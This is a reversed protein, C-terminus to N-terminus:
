CFTPPQHPSLPNVERLKDKDIIVHMEKRKQLHTLAKMYGAKEETVNRKVTPKTPKQKPKQFAAGEPQGLTPRDHRGYSATSIRARAMVEALNAKGIKRNNVDACLNPVGAPLQGGEGEYANRVERYQQKAKVLARAQSKVEFPDQYPDQGQKVEVIPEAKDQNKKISKYGWRPAWDGVTDDWVKRGRKRKHIGKADAFLEWRTKPKIVPPPLERPLRLITNSTPLVALSAEAEAEPSVVVPLDFIRNVLIQLFQQHHSSQLPRDDPVFAVLHHLCCDLTSGGGGAKLAPGRTVSLSSLLLAPAPLHLLLHLLLQAAM